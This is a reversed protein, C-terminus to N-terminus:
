QSIREERMGGVKAVAGQVGIGHDEQTNTTAHNLEVKAKVYVTIASVLDLHALALDITRGRHVGLAAM